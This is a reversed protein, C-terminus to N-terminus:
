AGSVEVRIDPTERGDYDLTFGVADIDVDLQRGRVELVVTDGFSYDVDYRAQKTDLLTGGARWQPRNKELKAEAQAQTAADSAGEGGASANCYGERRNWISAGYRTADSADGEYRADEVGQGRGYIYNLEDTHDYELYGGELNGWQRGFFVPNDSTSSHDNGRRTTFTQFQWGIKGTSAFQPIMDFYLATGNQASAESIDQLVELVNQWSMGKTGSPAAALDGQVTIGGGVASINRLAAADTGVNDVVIAKLMDDFQDTMLAQASAADYGVVRGAILYNADYGWLQTREVGSADSYIWRRVFYANFLKLAGGASKRWFEIISDLGILDDYSSPLTITMAGIANRRRTVSFGGTYDLTTIRNGSADDLWVEWESM